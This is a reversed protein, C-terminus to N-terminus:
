LFNVRFIWQSSQHQLQLEFVKAVWHSTGVWQFLRISPFISPVLVLSSLSHSPQIADSVWHVHTQALELLQQLVHFDPSSCDMPDHLTPCSHAVSCCCCSSYINTLYIFQQPQETALDHRVRQSGMSQLMGPKGTRWWSRFSARVWTWQTSALWGDWARYDGEGGAKM